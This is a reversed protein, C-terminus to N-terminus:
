LSGLTRLKISKIKSLIDGCAGQSSQTKFLIYDMVGNMIWISLCGKSKEYLKMQYYIHQEIKKRSSNNRTYTVYDM